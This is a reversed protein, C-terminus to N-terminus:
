MPLKIQNRRRVLLRAAVGPPRVNVMLGCLVGSPLAPVELESRQANGNLNLM